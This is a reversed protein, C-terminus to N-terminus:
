QLIGAGAAEESCPLHVRVWSMESAQRTRQWSPSPLARRLVDSLHSMAPM